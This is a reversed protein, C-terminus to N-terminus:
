REQQIAVCKGRHQRRLPKAGDKEERQGRRFCFSLRALLQLARNSETNHLHASKWTM